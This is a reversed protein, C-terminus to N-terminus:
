TPASIQALGFKANWNDQALLENMKLIPKKAKQTKEALRDRLKAGQAAM